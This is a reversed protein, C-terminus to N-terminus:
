KVLFINNMTCRQQIEEVFLYTYISSFERLLCHSTGKNYDTLSASYITNNETARLGNILFPVSILYKLM